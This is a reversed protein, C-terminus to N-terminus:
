RVPPRDGPPTLLGPCMALSLRTSLMRGAQLASAQASRALLPCQAPLHKLADVSLLLAMLLAAKM